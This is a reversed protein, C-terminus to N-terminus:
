HSYSLNGVSSSKHTSRLILFQQQSPFFFLVWGGTKECFYFNLIQAVMHQSVCDQKERHFASMTNGTSDLIRSIIQSTTIQRLPELSDLM